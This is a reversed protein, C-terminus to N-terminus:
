SKSPQRTALSGGASPHQNHSPSPLSFQSPIASPLPVSVAVSVAVSVLVTVSVALSVVASLVVVSPGSHMSADIHPPSIGSHSSPAHMAHPSPAIVLQADSYGSV